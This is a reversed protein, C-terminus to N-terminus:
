PVCKINRLSKNVAIYEESENNNKSYQDKNNCSKLTVFFVSKKTNM